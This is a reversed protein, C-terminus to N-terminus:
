GIERGSWFTVTSTRHERGGSLVTMYFNLKVRYGPAAWRVSCKGKQPQVDDSSMPGCPVGGFFTEDDRKVWFTATANKPLIASGTFLVTNSGAQTYASYSAIGEPDFVPDPPPPLTNTPGPDGPDLEGPDVTPEDTPLEETSPTEGPELSDSPSPTAGPEGTVPKPEGDVTVTIAHGKTWGGGSSFSPTLRYTGPLADWVVAASQLGEPEFPPDAFKDPVARKIDDTTLTPGPGTGNFAVDVRVTKAFQGRGVHLLLNVPGKALHQKTIPQDFWIAVDQSPSPVIKAVAGGVGAVVIAGIAIKSVLANGSLFGLAM